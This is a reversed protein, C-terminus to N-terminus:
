KNYIKIKKAIMYNQLNRKIIENKTKLELELDKMKNKRNTISGCLYYMKKFLKRKSTSQIAFLEKKQARLEKDFKASAIVDSYGLDNKALKQMEELREKKVLLIQGYSTKGIRNSISLM